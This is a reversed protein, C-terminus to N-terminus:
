YFYLMDPVDDEPAMLDHLVSVPGDLGGLGALVKQCM